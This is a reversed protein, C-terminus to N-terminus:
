PPLIANYIRSAPLCSVRVKGVPIAKILPGNVSEPLFIPFVVMFISTVSIYLGRPLHGSLQHLQLIVFRKSPCYTKKFATTPICCLYQAAAYWCGSSSVRVKIILLSVGITLVAGM